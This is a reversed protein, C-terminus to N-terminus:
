ILCPVFRVRVIDCPKANGKPNIQRLSCTRVYRIGALVLKQKGQTNSIAPDSQVYFNFSPTQM